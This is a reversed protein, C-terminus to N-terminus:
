GPFSLDVIHCELGCIAIDAADRDHVHAAFDGEAVAACQEAFGNALQEVVAAGGDQEVEGVDIVDVAGADAFEDAAVGGDGIAAAFQLKEMEGFFNVIKQLDGLEEGDEFNKGIFIGGCAAEASGRRRPEEAGNRGSGSKAQAGSAGCGAASLGSKVGEEGDQQVGGPNQALM